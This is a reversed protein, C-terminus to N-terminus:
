FQLNYINKGNIDKWKFFYNFFSFMITVLFVKDRTTLVRECGIIVWAIAFVVNWVALKFIPIKAMKAEAPFLNEGLLKM